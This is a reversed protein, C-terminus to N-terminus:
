ESLLDQMGRGIADGILYYTEGNQNWHFSQNRPSVSSERWFDRTDASSVNGDFRPYLTPNGVALQGELITLRIGSASAGGIGTNAISVPLKSKGFEARVDDILDVMNAEYQSATFDSDGDNWGQHWGFGVIEYGQGAWEPFETDLSDLVDHVYDFMGFYYPGVEGGRNAVAAPSRFDAYLSKGGWSTKIILVPEDFYEGMVWGFGYEPGFRTSDVGFNPLLDGKKMTRTAALDSDRWFVKVDDRPIWDGENDVLQGYNDPDSSVQYRLSGIAGTADGFGTENRGHGQMNSQGSLIFVKIGDPNDDWTRFGASGLGTLPRTAVDTLNAVTVTYDADLGLPTATTLVITDSNAGITAATVAVFGGGDLEVTFNAANTAAATQMPESFDLSITSGNGWVRDLTPDELDPLGVALFLREAGPKPSPFPGFTTLTGDPNASVAPSIGPVFNVLDESWYLGYVDGPNSKWTLTIEDLADSYSIDAIELPQRAEDSEVIQMGNPGIHNFGNGWVKATVSNGTLGKFVIYNGPTDSNTIETFTGDFAGSTLTFSEESGGNITIKGTGDGFQDRNAGIYFILDFADFDIGTVEIDFINSGDGPAATSNAHGDMLNGNGDNPLTTRPPQWIYPGGNRTDKLTFSVTSGETGTLNVAAQPQSPAWPLNYNQWATTNWDGFGAAQDSQLTLVPAWTHEGGGNRWFNVSIIEQAQINGTMGAILTALLTISKSRNLM